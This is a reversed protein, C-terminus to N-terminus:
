RFDPLGSQLYWVKETEDYEWLQKDVLTKEIMQDANFYTIKVAQRVRLQDESLNISLLEYSTVRIKNLKDVHQAEHDTEQKKRFSSAVDYDGWRIAHSYASSVDEFQALRYKGQLSTCGVIFLVCLSLVYRVMDGCGRGKKDKAKSWANSASKVGPM